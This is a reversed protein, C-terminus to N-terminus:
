DGQWIWSLGQYRIEARYDMSWNVRYQDCAASSVKPTMWVRVSNEGNAGAGPWPSIHEHNGGDDVRGAANGEGIRNVLGGFLDKETLDPNFKTGTVDTDGHNVMVHNKIRQRIQNFNLDIPGCNHVLVPTEGPLVYYTHLDRVTLKFAPPGRFQPRRLVEALM